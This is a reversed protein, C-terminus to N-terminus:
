TPLSPNNQRKELKNKYNNYAANRRGWEETSAARLRFDIDLDIFLLESNDDHITGIGVRSKKQV